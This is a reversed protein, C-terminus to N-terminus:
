VLRATMRVAHEGPAYYDPLTKLFTFGQQTYWNLLRTDSADAELSIERCGRNEAIELIKTMFAQGVGEGRCAPDVAISYIRLRHKHPYLIAAAVMRSSGGENKEAVWASQFPSAVSRRLSRATSQRHPAFSARELKLLEPLDASNAERFMLPRISNKLLIITHL